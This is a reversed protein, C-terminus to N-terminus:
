CVSNRVHSHRSHWRRRIFAAWVRSDPRSDHQLSSHKSAHKTNHFQFACTWLGVHNNNTPINKENTQKRNTVQM